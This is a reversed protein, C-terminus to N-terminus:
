YHIEEDPSDGSLRRHFGMMHNEINALEIYYDDLYDAVLSHVKDHLDTEVNAILGIMYSIREQVVNMEHDDGGTIKQLHDMEHELQSVIDELERITKPELKIKTIYNM